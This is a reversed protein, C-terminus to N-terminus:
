SIQWSLELLVFIVSVLLVFISFLFHQMLSTGKLAKDELSLTPINARLSMQM